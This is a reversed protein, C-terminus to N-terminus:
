EGSMGVFRRVKGHNLAKADAGSALLREVIQRRGMMCAFHLAANGNGAASNASAGADLLLNVVALAGTHVALHLPPCSCVLRLAGFPFLPPPYTGTTFSVYHMGRTCDIPHHYGQGNMVDYGHTTQAELDAGADVLLRAVALSGERAAVHLPTQNMPGVADVDARAAILAQAIQDGDRNCAAAHLPTEGSPQTENIDGGARIAEELRSISNSEAARFVLGAM